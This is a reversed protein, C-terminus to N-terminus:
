RWGEAILLEHKATGDPSVFERRRGNDDFWQALRRIRVTGPDGAGFVVAAVELPRVSRGATRVDAVVLPEDVHFAVPSGGPAVVTLGLLHGRVDDVSREGKREREIYLRDAALAASAADRLEETTQGLGWLAWTIVAAAEQLSPASTDVLDVATVDVGTPLCRDLAEALSPVDAVDEAARALRVDLYEADSEACTPLALGFALRPRPTFGQSMAVPVRARRIAQEWLRCLDRSGVFRVAGDVRYRLRLVSSPAAANM